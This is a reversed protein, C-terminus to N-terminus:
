HSEPTQSGGGLPGLCGPGLLVRTDPSCGMAGVWFSSLHGPGEWDLPGLCGGRGGGLLGLYGGGVLDWAHLEGHTHTRAWANIARRASAPHRFDVRQLLPALVTTSPVLPLDHQVFIGAALAVGAGGLAM